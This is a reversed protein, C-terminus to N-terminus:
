MLFVCAHSADPKEVGSYIKLGGIKLSERETWEEDRVSKHSKSSSTFDPQSETM